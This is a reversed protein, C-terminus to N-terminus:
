FIANEDKKQSIVRDTESSESTQELSMNLAKSLPTGYKKWFDSAEKLRVEELNYDKDGIKQRPPKSNQYIRLAADYIGPYKGTAEMEKALELVTDNFLQMTGRNSFMRFAIIPQGDSDWLSKM